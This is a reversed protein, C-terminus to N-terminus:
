TNKLPAAVKVASHPAEGPMHREKYLFYTKGINSLIAVENPQNRICNGYDTLPVQFKM